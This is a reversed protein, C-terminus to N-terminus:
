RGNYYTLLFQEIVPLRSSDDHRHDTIRQEVEDSLVEREGHGTKRGLVADGVRAETDNQGHHSEDVTQRTEDVTQYGVAHICAIVHREAQQEACQGAECEAERRRNQSDVDAYRWVSEDDEEAHQENEVVDELAAAECKDAVKGGQARSSECQIGGCSSAVLIDIHFVDCEIPAPRRAM